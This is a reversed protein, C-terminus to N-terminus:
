PSIISKKRAVKCVKVAGKLGALKGYCWWGPLSLNMDALSYTDTAGNHAKTYFKSNSQGHLLRVHYM